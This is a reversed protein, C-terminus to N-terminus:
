LGGRGTLPINKVKSKYLLANRKLIRANYLLLYPMTNNSQFHVVSLQLSSLATAQKKNITDPNKNSGM